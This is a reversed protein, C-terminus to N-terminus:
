KEYKSVLTMWEKTDQLNSLLKIISGAGKTCVNITSIGDLSSKFVWTTYVDQLTFIKTLCNVTFRISRSKELKLMIKLM